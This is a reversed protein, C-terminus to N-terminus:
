VVAVILINNIGSTINTSKLKCLSNFLQKYYLQVYTRPLFKDCSWLQGGNNTTCVNTEVNLEVSAYKM